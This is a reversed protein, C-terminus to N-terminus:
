LHEVLGTAGDCRRCDITAWQFMNSALKNQEHLKGRAKLFKAEVAQLTGLPTAPCFKVLYHMSDYLAATDQELAYLKEFEECCKQAWSEFFRRKHAFPFQDPSWARMRGLDRWIVPIKQAYASENGFYPRYEHQHELIYADCEEPEFDLGGYSADFEACYEVAIHPECCTHYHCKETPNNLVAALPPLVLECSHFKTRFPSAYVSAVSSVSGFIMPVRVDHHMYHTIVRRCM